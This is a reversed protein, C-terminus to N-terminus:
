RQGRGWSQELSRVYTQNAQVAADEDQTMLAHCRTAMAKQAPTRDDFLGALKPDHFQNLERQWREALPSVYPLQACTQMDRRWQDVATQAAQHEAPRDTLFQAHAVAPLALALLALLFKM